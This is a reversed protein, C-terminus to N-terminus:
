CAPMGPLMPSVRLEINGNAASLLQSAGGPYHLFRATEVGTLCRNGFVTFHSAFSLVAKRCKGELLAAGKRYVKEIHDGTRGEIPSTFVLRIL